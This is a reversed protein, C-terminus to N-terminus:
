FIKMVGFSFDIGILFNSGYGWKRGSAVVANQGWSNEEKKSIKMFLIM